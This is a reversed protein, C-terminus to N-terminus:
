ILRIILFCYNITIKLGAILHFSMTIEGSKGKEEQKYISVHQRRLVFDNEVAHRWRGAQVWATFGANLIVQTIHPYASVLRWQSPKITVM